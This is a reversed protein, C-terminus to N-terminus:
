DQLQQMWLNLKVRWESPASEPYHDVLWQVDERAAARNGLRENLQARTVRDMSSDPDVALLLNLYSVSEKFQGEEELASSLLNRLMRQIIGRKTAPRLMGEEFQGSDTLQLAAQEVSLQRGKAFVDLLRLEGEPGEQYGVMFRGPLPVGFVGSIGLRSALEVYLVSLTIPLGERDDLLENMYSNSRNGMDQRGGHFGSEEFLYKNLRNVAAETGQKIAPDQKLEDVMRAFEELYNGVSIEANDHRALLLAARMLDVKEEPRSIEELLLRTVERRHLDKELDKLAAAERELRQRREQMVRRAAAPDALLAELTTGRAAPRTAFEDLAGELQGALAAPLPKEELDTGVQFGRFEAEPARFRCLGASGGRLVADEHVLVRTGNVWFTLRGPEVRVRLHNWQGPHYAETQIQSLITWSDVFPGEFRTLRLNGASPYFGYCRNEDQACFVLGAAGAEDSLRVNVAVEVTDAEAAPGEGKWLCLTRGGFGTGMEASKIVGARQTWRAGLLSQWQRPNLVGITLWRSMPVPNPAAILSKLDNVPMAYGLNDTKASKLTLIGLVRGQRDLLPGGSNGKEIPLALRIMAHDNVIDPFESVVGDVISFALGEPNGMAAVPQGQKIADSDALSLPKLGKQEIRLLALDSDEDTATVEVVEHKSGDSMEVQLRRGEGIVHYNTAILGNADVVFGAGLGDLGDRGTQLVKVVSPKAEAAITEVSKMAEASATAVGAALWAWCFLYRSM